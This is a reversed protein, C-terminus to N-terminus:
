QKSRWDPQWLFEYPENHEIAESCHKNLENWVNLGNFDNCSLSKSRLNKSSKAVCHNRFRNM